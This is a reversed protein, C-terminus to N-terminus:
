RGLAAHAAPTQEARWGAGDAGWATLEWAAEAQGSGPVSDYSCGRHNLVHKGLAESEVVHQEFRGAAFHQGGLGIGAGAQGALDAQINGDDRAAMSVTVSDCRAM